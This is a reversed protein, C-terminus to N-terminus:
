VQEQLLRLVSEEILRHAEPLAAQVPESFTEGLETSAAGVTLLLAEGPQSGYYDRALALLEGAGLHHTSLGQSSPLAAVPALSVTGPAADISCDLFLVSVASAVEEVLELTWQHRSIVRLGELAAFREEAWEALWPGVGDDGRLTNGCALLLCRTPKTSLM